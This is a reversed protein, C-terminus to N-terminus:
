RGSPGSGTGTVHVAYAATTAAALNGVVCQFTLLAVFPQVRFGKGSRLSDLRQRSSGSPALGSSSASGTNPLTERSDTHCGVFAAVVVVMM